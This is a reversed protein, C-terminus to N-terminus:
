SPQDTRVPVHMAAPSFYLYIQAVLHDGPDCVSKLEVVDIHQYTFMGIRGPARASEMRFLEHALRPDKTLHLVSGLFYDCQSTPEEAETIDAIIFVTSSRTRDGAAVQSPFCLYERIEAVQEELRRFRRGFTGKREDTLGGVGPERDRDPRPRHARDM